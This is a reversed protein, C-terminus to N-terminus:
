ACWASVMNLVGYATGSFLGPYSQGTPGDPLRWGPDGTGLEYEGEEAESSPASPPPLALLARGSVPGGLWCGARFRQFAAPRGGGVCRVM